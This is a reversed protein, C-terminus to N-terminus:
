LLMEDDISLGLPQAISYKRRCFSFVRKLYSRSIFSTSNTEKKEGEFFFLELLSIYSRSTKPNHLVILCRENGELLFIPNLRLGQLGAVICRRTYFKSSLRLFGPLNSESIDKMNFHM